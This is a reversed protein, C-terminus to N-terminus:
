WFISGYWSASGLLITAAALATCYHLATCHLCDTIVNLVQNRAAPAVGTLTMHKIRNPLRSFYAFAREGFEGDETGAGQKFVHGWQRQM